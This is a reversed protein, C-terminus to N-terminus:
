KAWKEMFDYFVHTPLVDIFLENISEMREVRYDDNIRKLHEDIMNLIKDKDVPEDCGIYWHHAFRNEYHIGAVTFENIDLKMVNSVHDIAQNMNDQSLHEGVLSLFHKTRGKIMIECRQKNVFEIVDGIMYRWSGANTSVLIAYGVKEEVENITLTKCDRKINGESDFNNDDFPVFEYYIGNDMILQMIRKNLDIQYAIYGESALYSESYVVPKGFLKKFSNEYPGFAVGSHVYAALSPWLDHITNLNYEKVIRELLIQVWAPVGVIVGIDWKPANKVMENLKDNWDVTKSIKRGPKYFYQFWFPLNAASIGSLDGSYYTGNYQLHTSGGIMLIGKDWFDPPFDYRTACILQRISARKISRLMNNTVPIFKSSAESTGSSLAFYKVVGPWTVNAEGNLERFWWERYMSNYDHVPVNTRFADFLSDSNLIADFNYYTGFATLSAKRLLRKLEKEQANIPDLRKQKFEIPISGVTYVTKVISGFINAMRVFIQFAFNFSKKLTM